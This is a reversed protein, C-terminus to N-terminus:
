YNYYHVFSRKNNNNFLGLSIDQYCNLVIDFYALYLFEFAKDVVEASKDFVVKEDFLLNMGEGEILLSTLRLIFTLLM